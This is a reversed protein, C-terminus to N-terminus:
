LMSVVAALSIVAWTSFFIALLLQKRAVFFGANASNILLGLVVIFQFGSM